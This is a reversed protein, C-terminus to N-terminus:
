RRAGRGPVYPDRGTQHTVKPTTEGVPNANPPTQIGKSTDTSRLGQLDSPLMAEVTRGERRIADYVERRYVTKDKPANIGLRIKDGRIDVVIVEIDDGIM